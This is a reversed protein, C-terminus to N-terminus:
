ATPPRSDCTPPWRSATPAPITPMARAPRLGRWDTPRTRRGRTSISTQGPRPKSTAWTSSSTRPGPRPTAGTQGLEVSTQGGINLFTDAEAIAIAGGANLVAYEQATTENHAHVSLTSVGTAPAILHVQADQGIAADTVPSVNVTIVGASGDLLGGSASNLDAIQNGGSDLAFAHDASNEAGITLNTSDLRTSDGLRATVTSNVTHTLIAGSAGALSAQTSDVSGGFADTHNAEIDTLGGITDILWPTNNDTVTTAQTSATANTTALAAAGAIIGGTGATSSAFNGDHNTASLTLDAATLAVLDTLTAHTTTNSDANATDAGLAVGGVSIMGVTASQDTTNTATVATDGTTAITSHDVAAVASANNTATAETATLAVFGGTSGMAYVYVSPGSTPAAVAADVELTGATLSSGQTVTASVSPQLTADAQSEGGAFGVSGAIGTATSSATDSSLGKVNIDGLTTITAGTLTASVTPKDTSLSESGEGGAIIGASVATSSTTASDNSTAQILSSGVTATLGGVTAESSGEVDASAYSVGVAGGVSVAAGAGTATLNRDSSSSVEFEGATTVNGSASALTASSDSIIAANAQASVIISATAAM